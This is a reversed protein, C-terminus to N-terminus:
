SVRSFTAILTHTLPRFLPISASLSICRAFMVLWVFPERVCAFLDVDYSCGFVPLLVYSYVCLAILSIFLENISYIPITSATTDVPTDVCWQPVICVNKCHTNWHLHLKGIVMAMPVCNSVKLRVDICVCFILTGWTLLRSVRRIRKTLFGFLKRQMPWQNDDTWGIKWWVCMCVCDYIIIVVVVVPVNIIIVVCNHIVLVQVIYIVHLRNLYPYQNLGIANAQENIQKNNGDFTFPM